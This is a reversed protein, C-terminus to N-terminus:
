GQGGPTHDHDRPCYWRLDGDIFEPWSPHVHGPCPRFTAGHTEEIILAYVQDVFSNAAGDDALDDGTFTPLGGCAGDANIFEAYTHRITEGDWPDDETQSVVSAVRWPPRAGAEDLVRQALARVAECVSWSM